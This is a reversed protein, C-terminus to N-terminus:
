SWSMGLADGVSSARHLDRPGVAGKAKPHPVWDAWLRRLGDVDGLPVWKGCAAVVPDRSWLPKRLRGQQVGEGVSKAPTQM